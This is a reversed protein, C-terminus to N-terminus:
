TYLAHAPVWKWAQQVQAKCGEAASGEICWV